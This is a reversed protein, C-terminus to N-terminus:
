GKELKAADEKEKLNLRRQQSRSFSETPQSLTFETYRFYRESAALLKDLSSSDARGDMALTGEDEIAPLVNRPM